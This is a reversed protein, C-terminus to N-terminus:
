RHPLDIYKSLFVYLDSEFKERNFDKVKKPLFDFNSFSELFSKALISKSNKDTSNIFDRYKDGKILISYYFRKNIEYPEGTFSNKKIQHNIYKPKNKKHLYEYEKTPNVVSLVISIELLDRGYNLTTLFSNIQEFFSIILSHKKKIENEIRLNLLIKM